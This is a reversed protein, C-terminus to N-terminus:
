ILVFNGTEKNLADILNKLAPIDLSDPLLSEAITNCDKSIILGSKISGTKPTVNGPDIKEISNCEFGNITRVVNIRLNVEKLNVDKIKETPLLTKISEINNQIFFTKVFGIRGIPLGLVNSLVIMVKELKEPAYDIQFILDVRNKFVQITLDPYNIILRPFQVPADTPLPLYQSNTEGLLKKIELAFSEFASFEKKLFFAIQTQILEKEM